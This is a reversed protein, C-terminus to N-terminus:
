KDEILTKRVSEKIFPHPTATGSAWRIITPISTKLKDALTEATDSKLAEVILDQFEQDIKVKEVKNSLTRPWFCIILPLGVVFDFAKFENMPARVWQVVGIFIWVAIMVAFIDIM